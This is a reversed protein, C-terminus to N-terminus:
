QKEPLEFFKILGPGSKSNLQLVYEGNRFIFYQNYIQSRTGYNDISVYKFLKLNGKQGILEMFDTAGNTKDEYFVPMREFIHGNKKYAQIENLKINLVQGTSLVCKTKLLGITIEECFYTKSSTVVYDYDNLGKANMALCAFFLLPILILKKM